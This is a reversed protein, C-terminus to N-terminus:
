EFFAFLRVEVSARGATGPPCHPDRFAAHMVPPSLPAAFDHEVFLLLEDQGMASFQYWRHDPNARCLLLESMYRADPSYEELFDAVCLDEPAISNRACLALPLDHPPDTVPRWANLALVQPYRAAGPAADISGAVLAQLDIAGDETSLRRDQCELLMRRASIATYDAHVTPIAVQFSQPDPLRLVSVDSIVRAAGTAACVREQLHILYRSDRVAQDRLDLTPIPDEAPIFGERALSLGTAGRADRITVERPDIAMRSLHAHTTHFFPRESQAGLYDLRALVPPVPQRDAITGPSAAM